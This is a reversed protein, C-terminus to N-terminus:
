IEREPDGYTQRQKQDNHARAPTLALIRVSEKTRQRHSQLSKHRDCLLWLAAAM